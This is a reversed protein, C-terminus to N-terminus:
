YKLNVYKDFIMFSSKSYFSSISLHPLINVLMHIHNSCCEAEIMNVGKRDCFERLIKGHESFSVM